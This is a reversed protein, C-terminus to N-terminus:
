KQVLVGEKDKIYRIIWQRIDELATLMVTIGGLVLFYMSDKFYPTLFFLHLSYFISILGLGAFVIVINNKM